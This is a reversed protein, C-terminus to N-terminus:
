SYFSSNQRASLFKHGTDEFCWFTKTLGYNWIDWTGPISNNYELWYESYENSTSRTTSYKTYKNTDQNRDSM